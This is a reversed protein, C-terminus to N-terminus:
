YQRFNTDCQQSLIRPESGLNNVEFRCVVNSKMVWTNLEAATIRIWLRMDLDFTLPTNSKADGMSKAMKKPLARNMGMVDVKFMTSADRRQELLMPFKGAAVKTGEFLMNVESNEYTIGLKENPNKARLSIEYHPPRSINKVDFHTISFTPGTPNFIFFLTALTIGVVAIIAFLILAITLLVRPCRCCCGRGGNKDNTNRPKRYREVILANERPPVRYIQDKPFQVIYMNDHNARGPPIPLPSPPADDFAAVTTTGNNNQPPAQGEM